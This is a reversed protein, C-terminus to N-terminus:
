DILGRAELFYRIEPERGRFAQWSEMPDRSNGRSLIEERLSVALNRDLMTTEEFAAFADAALVESWLTRYDGGERRASFLSALGTGHHRPSISPPLDLAERVKREASELDPVEDAAVGHLALDLEIAAVHQMVKIGGLMRSSAELATIADDTIMSGSERHFAYMRLVEPQLAWHELLQAPFEVFDAPVASGALSRYNVDSFLEHLAHGFEHFLTRVEEAGLLSPLGAAPPPFNTVNAVVPAVREEGDYQQVRYVSAWAGGRKGERHRHDLYIVGLHEGMAGRVEFAEVDTDWMPLDTRVHFSLGWLRNALAFAGDRVLDLSFWERLEADTQELETERLREEYYWWDWPQLEDDIGDTRALQALQRFEEEAKVRATSTIEDLLDRLRDRSGITSDTLLYDLHSDFGLLEAREARLEAMRHIIEAPDHQQNRHKRLRDIWAEYMAKRQEREPFHRLFPYLSHAHLTFVWGSEHGRDRASRAALTILAEPLGELLAEDEILLEHRHTAERLALDFRGGLDALSAEIAQLREQDTDSLQAGSREFRQFTLEVLRRQESELGLDDLDAHISEIRDFLAQNFLVSSTYEALRASFEPAVAHLEPDGSVAILGFFTRAIRSLDNEAQELAEISNDFTPPDGSESITSVAREHDDILQELAPLFHAADLRHFPPTRFPTLYRELLPNSAPVAPATEEPEPQPREEERPAQECAFLLLPLLAALIIRVPTTM